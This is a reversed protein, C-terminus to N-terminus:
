RWHWHAVNELLRVDRVTSHGTSCPLPLFRPWAGAGNPLSLILFYPTTQKSVFHFSVPHNWARRFGRPIDGRRVVWLGALAQYIILPLTPLWQPSTHMDSCLIAWRGCGPAESFVSSSSHSFVLIWLFLLINIKKSFFFTPFLSEFHNHDCVETQM